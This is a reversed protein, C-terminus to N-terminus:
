ELACEDSGYEVVGCPTCTVSMTWKVFWGGAQTLIRCGMDLAGPNRLVVEVDLEYLYYGDHLVHTVNDPPGLFRGIRVGLMVSGLHVLEVGVM